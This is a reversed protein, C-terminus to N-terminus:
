ASSNGLPMRYKEQFSEEILQKQQSLVTNKLM